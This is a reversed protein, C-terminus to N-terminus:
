SLDGVNLLKLCTWLATTASTTLFTHTANTYDSIEKRFADINKGRSFMGSEFVERFDSEVEEFTVYPKMLRIHDM